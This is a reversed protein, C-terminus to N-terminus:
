RFSYNAFDITFIICTGIMTQTIAQIIPDPQTNAVVHSDPVSVSDEDSEDDEEVNESTSRPESFQASSSSLSYSRREINSVTGFSEHKKKMQSRSHTSATGPTASRYSSGFSSLPTGARSNHQSGAASQFSITSMHKKLTPRNRSGTSITQSGRNTARQIFEPPPPSTPRPPPMGGYPIGTSNTRSIIDIHGGKASSASARRSMDKIDKSERRSITNHKDSLVTSVHEVNHESAQESTPLVKKAKSTPSTLKEQEHYVHVTKVRPTNDNTGDDTQVGM